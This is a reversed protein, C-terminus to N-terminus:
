GADIHRNSSCRFFTRPPTLPLAGIPAIRKSRAQRSRLSEDGRAVVGAEGPTHEREPKKDRWGVAAAVSSSSGLLLHRAEHEDAETHSRLHQAGSRSYHFHAHLFHYRRYSSKQTTTTCPSPPPQRANMKFFKKHNLFLWGRTCCAKTRRPRKTWQLRAEVKNRRGLMARCRRRGAATRGYLIGCFSTARRRRGEGKANTTLAAAAGGRGSVQALEMPVHEGAAVEDGLCEGAAAPHISWGVQSRDKRGNRRRRNGRGGSGDDEREGDGGAGAGWVLVFLGALLAWEEGGVKWKGGRANGTAPRPDKLNYYEKDLEFDMLKEAGGYFFTTFESNNFHMRLYIARDSTTRTPAVLYYDSGMTMRIGYHGQEVVSNLVLTVRKQENTNMTTFYQVPMEHHEYFVIPNAADYNYLNFTTSTTTTTTTAQVGPELATATGPAGTTGGSSPDITTAATTAPVTTAPPSTTVAASANSGSLGAAGAADDAAGLVTGNSANAGLMGTTTTTTSTEGDEGATELEVVTGYVPPFMFSPFDITINKIALGLTQTFHLYLIVDNGYVHMGPPFPREVFLSEVVQLGDTEYFDHKVDVNTRVGRGIGVGGSTYMAAEASLDAELYLDFTRDLPFFTAPTLGMITSALNITDGVPITENFIVFFNRWPDATQCTTVVRWFTDLNYCSLHIGTPAKIRLKTQAPTMVRTKVSIGVVTQYVQAMKPFTIQAELSSLPFGPTTSHHHIM